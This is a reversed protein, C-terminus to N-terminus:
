INLSYFIFTKCYYCNKSIKMSSNGLNKLWINFRISACNTIKNILIPKIYSIISM